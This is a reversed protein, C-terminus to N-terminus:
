LREQGVALYKSGQLSMHSCILVKLLGTYIEINDRTPLSPHPHPTPDVLCDEGMKDAKWATEEEVLSARTHPSESSKRKQIESFVIDTISQFYQWSQIYLMFGLQSYNVVPTLAKRKREGCPGQHKPKLIIREAVEGLMKPLRKGEAAATSNSTDGDPSPDSAFGGCLPLLERYMGGLNMQSVQM